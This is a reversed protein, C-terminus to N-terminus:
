AHAAKVRPKTRIQGSKQSLAEDILDCILELRAPWDSLAAVERRRAKATEDTPLKLAEEIAAIFRVQEPECSLVVDPWRCNDNVAPLATSVVPKGMALYEYMLTFGQRRCLHM